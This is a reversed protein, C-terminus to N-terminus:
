KINVYTILEKLVIIPMNTSPDMMLGRIRVEVIGADQQARDEAASLKKLEAELRPLESQKIQAARDLQGNRAQEEAESRLAEIRKRLDSEM